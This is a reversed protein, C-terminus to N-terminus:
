QMNIHECVEEEKGGNGKRLKYKGICVIVKEKDRERIRRQRERQSKRETQRDRERDRERQRDTQRDIQRDIQRDRISKKMVVVVYRLDTDRIIQTM